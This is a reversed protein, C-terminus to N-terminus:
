ASEKLPPYKLLATHAIMLADSRGDLLGGRPGHIEAAPYLRSAIEAVNQKIAKKRPDGKLKSSVSVGVTSQWAKPRVKDVMVRAALAVTNVIGVNYGFKFNSGASSKPIPGVEEVMIVRLTYDRKLLEFWEIIDMPPATTNIFIAKNEAPLIACISGKDGPDIGVYVDHRM